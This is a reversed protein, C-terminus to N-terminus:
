SAEYRNDHAICYVIVGMFKIQGSLCRQLFLWVRDLTMFTMAQFGKAVISALGDIKITITQNQLFESSPSIGLDLM